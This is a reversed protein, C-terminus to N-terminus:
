PEKTKPADLTADGTKTSFRKFDSYERTADFRMGAFLFVKASANIQAFKPLWVGDAMRTQEFAFTSGPRVNAVLGGGIKISKDLRAELRMVQKDVPDIWVTGVLKAIIEEDDNSPKFNPRGRFDFVITDRDRFHERRPSVLECVRLFAAIGGLDDDVSKGKERKAEREAKERERKQKRKANDRELKELEEAVRRAEKEQKEPSLAVGNESILKYVEGGGPAPYVEQITVKEKKLEGRDNIEREVERLTFTYESVREDIEDQNRGVERLLTAIDLSSEGPPEFLTDSLNTNYHASQLMFTLSEADKVDVTLRHPELVGEVLRHEGFTLMAGSEPESIKLLLKSSVGFWCRVRGGQRTSFEVVYAPEASKQDVEVTRALVGSKKYDVLRSAALLAQLKATQAEAGSLTEVIGPPLLKWATRGNAAAISEGNSKDFESRYSFPAKLMTRVRENGLAPSQMEWDYTADKIAALRKKGGVAKLLDNVIKEPSPLKQPRGLLRAAPRAPTQSADQQQQQQALVAVACAPILLLFALRLAITRGAFGSSLKSSLKKTRPIIEIKVPLRLRESLFSFCALFCPPLRLAFLSNNAKNM